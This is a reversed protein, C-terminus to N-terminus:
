ASCRVWSVLPFTVVEFNSMVILLWSTLGKGAPSWLADILMRARFCLLFLVSIVVSGLCLRSLIGLHEWRISVFPCPTPNQWYSVVTRREILLFPFPQLYFNLILKLLLITSSLFLSGRVAQDSTLGVDWLTSVCVCAPVIHLVPM